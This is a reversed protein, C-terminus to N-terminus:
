RKPREDIEIIIWDDGHKAVTWMAPYDYTTSGGMIVSGNSDYYNQVYSAKIVGFENDFKIEIIRIKAFVRDMTPYSERKRTNYSYIWLPNDIDEIIIEGAMVKNVHEVLRQIDDRQLAEVTQKLTEIANENEKIVQSKTKSTLYGIIVYM